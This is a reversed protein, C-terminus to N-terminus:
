VLINAFISLLLTPIFASEKLSEISRSTPLSQGTDINLPQPTVSQAKEIKPLLQECLTLRNLKGHRKAWNDGGSDLSYNVDM